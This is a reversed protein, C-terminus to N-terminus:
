DPPPPPEAGVADATADIRDRMSRGSNPHMEHEIATLRAEIDGMRADGRDLRETIPATHATLIQHIWGGIPGAVNRKWLWKGPRNIIPLRAATAIAVLAGATIAIDTLQPGVVGVM